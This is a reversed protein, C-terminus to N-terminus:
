NSRLKNRLSIKSTGSIFEKKPKRDSASLSYYDIDPNYIWVSYSDFYSYKKFAEMTSDITAEPRLISSTLKKRNAHKFRSHNYKAFLRAKQSRAQSIKLPIIRPVLIWYQFRKYDRTKDYDIESMVSYWFHQLKFNLQLIQQVEHASYIKGNELKMLVAESLIFPEGPQALESSDENSILVFHNGTRAFLVYRM